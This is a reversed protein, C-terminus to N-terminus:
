AESLIGARRTYGDKKFPNIWIMEHTWQGDKKKPQLRLHGRVDFGESKVLTTFWTSDLIQIKSKTNNVYKCTIKGVKSNPLLTKTEIPAYKIFNLTGVVVSHLYAVIINTRGEKTTEEEIKKKFYPNLCDVIVDEWKDDSMLSIKQGTQHAGLVLKTEYFIFISFDHYQPDDKSPKTSYFVTHEKNGLFNLFVGTGEAKEWLDDQIMKQIAPRLADSFPKTLCQINQSFLSTNKNYENIINDSGQGRFSDPIRRGIHKIIPHTRDSFKM